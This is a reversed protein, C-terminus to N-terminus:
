TLQNNLKSKWSLFDDILGSNINDHTIFKFVLDSDQRSNSYAEKYKNRGSTKITNIIQHMRKFQMGIEVKTRGFSWVYTANSNLLEWVFHNYRSGEILFMFGFNPRLTYYLKHNETQKREALYALQKKNRVTGKEKLINLVDEETQNFTNGPIDDMAIGIFIEEHTFLTKGPTSIDDQKTLSLVRQYKISDILEPTILDIQDSTAKHGTVEYDTLDVSVVARIGKVKLRKSFWLKVSEFEPLVHQNYIKFDLEGFVGKVHRRFTVYGGKFQIDTFSVWFEAKIFRISPMRFTSTTAEKWSNTAEQFSMQAKSFPDAELNTLIKLLEVKKYSALQPELKGWDFKEFLILDVMVGLQQSEFSSIDTSNYDQVKVKLCKHDEEYLIVAVKWFIEQHDRFTLHAHPINTQGIPVFFLSNLYVGENNIKLIVGELQM